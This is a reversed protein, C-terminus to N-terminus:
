LRQIWSKSWLINPIVEMRKRYLNPMILLSFYMLAFISATLLRVFSFIPGMTSMESVVMSTNVASITHVMAFKVAKSIGLADGAMSFLAVKMTMVAM